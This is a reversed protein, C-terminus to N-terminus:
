KIVYKKGNVVYIGKTLNESNVRVGQLNYIAGNNVAVKSVANIGTAQGAFAYYKAAAEDEVVLYAKHAGNTFAAGDAAGFYFGVLDEGNIKKVTLKYYKGGGTTEAAEDSGKLANYVTPEATSETDITFKYSGAAGELVVAEGAPITQEAEYITGQQIQQENVGLVTFATVGEPVVLAKDSYYLTAYGAYSISATIFEADEKAKAGIIHVDTMYTSKGAIRYVYISSLGALGDGKKVTYTLTEEANKASLTLSVLPEGDRTPYLSLGGGNSTAYASINIVDGVQLPRSPKLLAFKSSTGDAAADGDCKYGYGCAAITSEERKDAGFYITGNGAELDEKVAYNENDMSYTLIEEYEIPEVSGSNLVDLVIYFCLQDGTNQFNFQTEEGTLPFVRVDPETTASAGMPVDKYQTDVDSVVRWGSVRGPTVSNIYSHFTIRTASIGEPLYLTNEAGNSLKISVNDNIRGGNSWAKESNNLTISYGEAADKGVLTSLGNVTQVDFDEYTLVITETADGKDVATVEVSSIESTIGDRSARAYVTADEFFTVPKTYEVFNEGDTSCEITVDATECEIAVTGYVVKFTPAAVSSIDLSIKESVIESNTYTENDGLAIAKVITGDEVTFPEEYVEGNTASPDSGDITYVISTTNEDAEITVEGTASDYSISPAPLVTLVSGSYVVKIYALGTESGNRNIIHKGAPVNTIVYINCKNDADVTVTTNAMSSTLKTGDFGLNDGSGNSTTQVITVTAKATSTFFAQTASEMKIVNDYTEGEYTCSHKGNSSWNVSTGEGKNYTFYGESSEVVAGKKFKIYYESQAFSVGGMFVTLLTLLCFRLKNNMQKLKLNNIIYRLELNKTQLNNLNVSLQAFNTNKKLLHM